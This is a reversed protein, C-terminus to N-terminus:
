DRGRSNDILTDSVDALPLRTPSRRGNGPGSRECLWCVMITFVVALSPTRLPYDTLSLALTALIGLIAMRQRLRWDSQTDDRLIRVTRWAFWGLFAVLIAAAAAGGSLLFELLDNHARNFYQPHLLADPEDIRYAVDFAGFGTGFPFYKGIMDTIVPWARFRMEEAQGFLRDLSSNRGAWWTLAVAALAIIPLLVAAARRLAVAGPGVDSAADDQGERAYLLAAAGIAMLVLLAAGSRSRTIMVLAAHLLAIAAATAYVAVRPYQRPADLRAWIALMPLSLALLLAQHNQNGFLGVPLFRTMRPFFYAPSSAGAALQIVGLAASTLAFLIMAGLLMRRGRRSLTAYGALTAAVPLLAMLSNITMDPDLSIPRWTADAGQAAAFDAFAGHGPMATWLGPPLPVLQVGILVALMVLFLVPIRLTRGADGSLNLLFFALFACSAPRLLLLFPHDSFSSGGAICIMALFAAFSGDRVRETTKMQGSIM